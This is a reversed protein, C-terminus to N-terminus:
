RYHGGIRQARERLQSAAKLSSGRFLALQGYRTCIQDMAQNLKEKQLLRGFMDLQYSADPQLDSLSIGAIRIPNRDWYKEFLYVAAHYIDLGFNTSYPLKMQRHFGTPTDIYTGRVSISVVNGRCREARAQRAVEESLELIIIRIDEKSRYDRPLTMHTGIVKSGSCSDPDVPSDDIGNATQWLLVGNIGWKKKLETVPYEALQGIRHIGMSLLHKEMRHGISFMKGIPIPWLKERINHRNLEFVGSQNKKGFIDCAMKAMVKNPGIGVRAFVGTDEMIQKQIQHAIDSPPGFLHQSGTVDMFQEDISYPEVLDTFSQLIDTIHISVDIYHQMRPRKIIAHPCKEVAKWLPEATTVGYSKAIRCAALVIGSRKKPDGAVIVPRNRLELHDAKECSAYFTEMDVLLVAKQM